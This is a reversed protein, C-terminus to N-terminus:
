CALIAEPGVVPSRPARMSLRYKRADRLEPMRDAFGRDVLWRVAHRVTRAPLGSARELEGANRAVGMRLCAYVFRVSPSASRVQLPMFPAAIPAEFERRGNIRLYDLGEPWAAPWDSDGAHEQARRRRWGAEDSQTEVRM